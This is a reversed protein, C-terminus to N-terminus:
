LTIQPTATAADPAPFSSASPMQPHLCMPTTLCPSPSRVSQGPGAQLAARRRRVRRPPATAASAPFPRPPRPPFQAWRSTRVDVHGPGGAGCQRAGGLCGLDAHGRQTVSSICLPFPLADASNWAINTLARPRQGSRGAAQGVSRHDLCLHAARGLSAHSRRRGSRRDAPGNVEEFILVQGAAPQHSAGTLTAATAGM